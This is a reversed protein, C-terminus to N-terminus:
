AVESIRYEANIAIAPLGAAATIREVYRAIAPARDADALVPRGPPEVHVPEIGAEVRGDDHLWLRGIFANVAEPHFPALTYAPDPTFGFLEQRQRAWEARAPHDQDPSLARTVVCGNGLGHFVPKGRYRSIGRVIHAHHAVVADAGADIAAQAAEREYAEILAPTHVRGQHLAVIVFDAAARAAALDDRLIERAMPLLGALDARPTVPSGDHTGMPLFACGARDPGAWGFEPGVCNYSLLAIRKGGVTAIAPRRAEAEDMGAGAHAVGAQNLLTVTGALGEPGCDAMHNGAMSVMAIGARAIAAVNAAPAGPAPVDGAVEAGDAHPVELHAIALDARRLAPAIGSLWYDADPEDLVLDGLLAISIM